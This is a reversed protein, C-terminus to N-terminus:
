YGRGNSPLLVVPGRARRDQVEQPSLRRLLANDAFLEEPARARYSALALGRGPVMAAEAKDIRRAITQGIM